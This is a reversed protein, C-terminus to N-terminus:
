LSGGDFIMSVEVITGSPPVELKVDTEHTRKTAPAIAHAEPDMSILLSKFDFFVKKIENDKREKKNLQM